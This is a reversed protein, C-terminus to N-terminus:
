ATDRLEVSDRQVPIAGPQVLRPASIGPHPPMPPEPGVGLAALVDAVPIRYQIGLKLVRVGMAELEGNRAAARIVPESVGFARGTTVIDLWTTRKALEVLEDPSLPQVRGGSAGLTM